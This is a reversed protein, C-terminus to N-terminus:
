TITMSSRGLGIVLETTPWVQTISISVVSISVSARNATLVAAGYHPLFPDQCVTPSAPETMHEVSGISHNGERQM